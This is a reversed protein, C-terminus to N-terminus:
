RHKHISDEVGIRLCFYSQTKERPEKGKVHFKYNVGFAIHGALGGIELSIDCRPVSGIHLRLPVVIPM